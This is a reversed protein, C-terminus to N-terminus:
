AVSLSILLILSVYCLMVYCIFLSLHVFIPTSKAVYANSDNYTSCIYVINLKFFVAKDNM